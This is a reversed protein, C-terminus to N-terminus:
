KRKGGKSIESVTTLQLHGKYLSLLEEAKCDIAQEVKEASVPFPVIKPDALTGLSQFRKVQAWVVGEVQQIIGAISTAYESQGFSRRRLSFLGTQDDEANPEGSNIGLAKEVAHRVDEELYTSDYGFTAHIAVHKRLGKQASVPFRNPGRSKNYGDLTEQVAALEADRGTDMLVIIVVEPINNILKWAASVKTVGSMAITESEFDKLSVLRGLSQIKGPAAERANEGDEPLSGGAAVDPMQIKDLGDLKGGAQVKTKDKQAGFAGTGTRYKAVVNKIGSPLRAGTKGDGFQVWSNDEADERVIYIEEDARRGFFSSVRKWLRNNVYIELEPVEPPTESTSLLYTLPSKPIKFNQFVLRSDGNGLTAQTETKGQTAEVINGYVTYPFPPANPFDAYALDNRDIEVKHLLPHLGDTASPAAVSKVHVTLPASGEKVFMLNRGLLNKAQEYTGYFNLINKGSPSADQLVARLSLLPSVTEHFQTERIDMYIYTDTSTDLAENLTLLSSTGTSVGWTMSSTKINTITRILTFEDNTGGASSKHLQSQILLTVGPPLDQVEADLPFETKGLTPEVILTPKFAQSIDINFGPMSQMFGSNGFNGYMYQYQMNQNFGGLGQLLNGIYFGSGSSSQTSETNGAISRYFSINIQKPLESEVETQTASKITVTSSVKDPPKTMTRPGNHGFHHFSRGLKYAALKQVSGSRKLKGKIKFVKIGHLERVSDVIVIEAKNLRKPNNASDAEGLMLRDGAKFTVLSAANLQNPSEIFFETIASSIQPSALPAFLNFKSLWPYATAEEGTEFDAPKDLGEVEAKVPFGAPITVPETGKIEFAFTALGGVGPSLRYGLLRALDAISERWQATRLYAENAYLEQYFTLIDGLIAAGELLAIGPDDAGRHTWASLNGTKDLNRLLYERIQAYTGIRYGIHSLGPRNDPRRPFILSELCDNRCDKKV